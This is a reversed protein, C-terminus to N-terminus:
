QDDDWYTPSRRWFRDMMRKLADPV